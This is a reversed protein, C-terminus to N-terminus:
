NQDRDCGYVPEEDSYYDSDRPRVEIYRLWSLVHLLPFWLIFGGLVIFFLQTESM